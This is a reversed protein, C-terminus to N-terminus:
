PQEWRLAILRIEVTLLGEDALALLRQDSETRMLEAAANRSAAARLARRDFLGAQVLTRATPVAESMARQRRAISTRVEQVQRCVDEIVRRCHDEAAAVIAGEYRERVIRAASRVEASSAAVPTRRWSISTAVIESHVTLGGQDKLALECVAGTTPAPKRRSGAQVVLDARKRLGATRQAFLRATALRDREAQAGAALQLSTTPVASDESPPTFSTDGMVFAAVSSEDWARQIRHGRAAGARVRRVLPALVFREATDRAVLSVEHVRRTQGLRDVRGTRQELRLPTWPLEFHVVLRCRDHLNLGESAADTAVLLRASRNFIRQAEVRERPLMQGHLMVVDSRSGLAALIHALTDRYETFVIAPERIRRLLRLLACVKSERRAANEASVAIEELCARELAVDALGSAAIVADPVGDALPDEDGLPLLLQREEEKPTTGLMELRRRVSSALSAASSLARKRLVMAALRANQDGRVTAERWVLSTYRELLRHMRSEASSIRVPLLTSKRDVGIGADRRTRRFETVPPDGDLRGVETIAALHATDGDPPTATMLVIRRSRAAVARAAAVRATGPGLSHVEDLVALDWAVEEMARFVEARKVLDLSAIYIGPLSWPNVDAPLERSCDALWTTDAATIDLSFKSALESRWQDRLGAPCLVLGRFDSNQHALESLIIGAQVTKGLGVEDAILIRLRGHRLMALAPELQFPLLDIAAAAARRLGGFPHATAFAHAVHHAWRRRGGARVRRAPASSRVRDFPLLFTRDVAHAPGDIATVRLAQCDAYEILSQVIWSSSRVVVGSGIALPPDHDEV